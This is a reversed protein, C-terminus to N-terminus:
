SKEHLVPYQSQNPSPPPIQSGCQWQDSSPREGGGRDSVFKEERGTWEVGIKRGREYRPPRKIERSKRAAASHRLRAAGAEACPLNKGYGMLTSFSGLPKVTRRM